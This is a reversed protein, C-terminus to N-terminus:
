GFPTCTPILSLGSIAAFVRTQRGHGPPIKLALGRTPRSRGNVVRGQPPVPPAILKSKSMRM